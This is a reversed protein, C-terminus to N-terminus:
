CAGKKSPGFDGMVWIVGNPASGGVLVTLSYQFGMAHTEGYKEFRRWRM